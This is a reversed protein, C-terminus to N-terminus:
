SEEESILIAIEELDDKHILCEYDGNDDETLSFEVNGSKHLYAIILENDNVILDGEFNLREERIRKFNETEKIILCKKEM